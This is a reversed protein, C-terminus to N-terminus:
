GELCGVGVGAAAAFDGAEGGGLDGVEAGVVRGGEVFGEAAALGGEVAWALEGGEQDQVELRM